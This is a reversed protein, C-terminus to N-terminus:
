QPAGANAAPDVANAAPEVINGAADVTQVAQTSDEAAAQTNGVSATEPAPSGTVAMAAASAAAVAADGARPPIASRNTAPQAQMNAASGAADGPSTSAASGAAYRPDINAASGAGSNAGAQDVSSSMAAATQLPQGTVPDSIGAGCASLLVTAGCCLLLNARITSAFTLLKKMQFSGQPLTFM